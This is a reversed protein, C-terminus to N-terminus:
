RRRRKQPPGRSQPRGGRHNPRGGGPRSGGPRGGGPRSGRSPARGGGRRSDRRDGGGEDGTIRKRRDDAAAEAEMEDWDMGQEELEEDADFDSEEDSDYDDEEIEEESDVEEDDEDEAGQAEGFDPDEDDDDDDDDNDERGYLRLFEWGAEKETVEDEETNEYFRDDEKVTNMIQKWNLNMPGETYTIEMDTLWECISDKDGNPIMDIRWPQKNFDKNVLVIDFAKSMYTVRELHVHDVDELDVVFFPTETLNVLCNLTPMIPVMERHPNGTFGLDRYPIDFEVEYGHRKAVADVKRCFDKFAQNLRKRLQRERQEDDMEDPDYMSRRSNDVTQSADIVETFYQIDLHKKKGVMIPNKLHFHILVMIESECPQFIAYKINPYMIDVVEGRTSIFRLGNTHAELNGQTKRGGFVPRMSLDSLRSVRENKIRVLKEQEVLNAEELAKLEKTRARKRLESIQRFALTLNHGELSRFTMERIFSAYPAYKQVLKAMNAPADKGVAMGASYFNLRLLTANDTIDPDPLVVNKITSIHFPVPNGAIPLMLCQSAMDVKVQNPQVSDPYDKTRKYAVLEEAQNHDGGKGKSKSKERAIERLREENRRVMLKMQRREREAAGEQLDKQAVETKALRASKRGGRTTVPESAMQRALEADGDPASPADDDDDDDDGGADDDNINYAIDTLAKGMKTLVEPTKGIAVMDSVLLSYKSLKKVASKEPTNARDAEPLEVDHFGIALCFVMGQKFALANKPTLLLATERFDLGMAFGLNKPLKSVLHEYGSKQQIYSVASKYVSKLPKGPKMAALCAAQVELLLEYTQSVKKPPDVLFTRAVNSCYMKYRAGLSVTIIDHSLADSNSQASVRIDYKGGSQVIPYYCSQVDDAPVKLNIKSPDELIEEVHAALQEHTVSTEEDIVEEMRKIYGHKMVKNSLVSSKKMLDQETDDKASMVMALGPASDVLEVTKKEVAEDLKQEWPGLLGGSEKNATREKLLIGVAHKKADEGEPPETPIGAQEWLTDYNEANNDEKNRLLLHIEKIASDKPIADAAPRLFDCKKKAAVIFLHGDQRLLFITDPLEYGCLWHHLVVSKLYPEDDNLPGHHLLLCHANNWISTQRHKTFHAHLKELRTFFRSVDLEAM